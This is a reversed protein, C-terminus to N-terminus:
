AADKQSSSASSPRSGPVARSARAHHDLARSRGPQLRVHPGDPHRPRGTSAPRDRSHSARGSRASRRTRRGPQDVLLRRPPRHQLLPRTSRQHANPPGRSPRPRRPCPSSRGQLGPPTVRHRVARRPHHRHSTAVAISSRVRSLRQPRVWTQGLHGGLSGFAQLAYASTLYIPNRSAFDVKGLLKVAGLTGAIVIIVRALGSMTRGVPGPHEVAVGRGCARHGGAAGHVPRRPHTAWVRGQRDAGPVPPGQHVLAVRRDGPVQPRSAAPRARRM